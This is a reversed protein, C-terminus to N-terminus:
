KSRWIPITGFLLVKKSHISKMITVLNNKKDVAWFSGDEININNQKMFELMEQRSKIKDNRKKSDMTKVTSVPNQFYYYYTGIVTTMKDSKFLARLTFPGDEFFMGENFRINELVNKKYIKNWVCGETLAKAIKIKDEISIYVGNTTLNLRIKHKNPGKRIFDAMAIDSNNLVASNYLKEFFDLDVWDDADVFGIYEGTAVSLGYNRARSQGQNHQTLLKIRPDSYKKCITVSDDKSGDDVLIIEIDQLTQNLLSELCREIYLECNYVPVIVSVKAMFEDEFNNYWVLTTIKTFFM